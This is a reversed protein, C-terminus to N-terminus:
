ERTGIVCCSWANKSNKATSSDSFAADINFEFECGLLGVAGVKAKGRRIFVTFTNYGRNQLIVPPDDIIVYRHVLVVFQLTSGSSIRHAFAILPHALYRVSNGNAVRPPRVPRIVPLVSFVLLIRILSESGIQCHSQNGHKSGCRNVM